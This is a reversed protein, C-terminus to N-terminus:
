SGAPLVIRGVASRASVLDCAEDVDALAAVRAVTLGSLNALTQELADRSSWEVSNFARPIRPRRKLGVLWFGGDPSPGLVADHTGLAKIASQIHASKVTPVDTGIVIVPGPPALDMVRQMRQGLDGNGQARRPIGQPWAASAIASDPTVDLETRWGGRRGIRALIARSTTRYFAAARVAGVERALRTKVRGVAPEKVMVVLRSAFPARARVTRRRVPKARHPPLPLSALRVM